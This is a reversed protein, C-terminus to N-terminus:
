PFGVSKKRKTSRLMRPMGLRLTLLAVLVARRLSPALVGHLPWTFPGHRQRRQRRQRLNPPLVCGTQRTQTAELIRFFPLSVTVIIM